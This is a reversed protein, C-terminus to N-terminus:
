TKNICRRLYWAALAHPLLVLIAISFFLFVFPFVDPVVQSLGKVWPPALLLGLLPFSFCPSLVLFMKYKRWCSKPILVGKLKRAIFYYICVGDAFIFAIALFLIIRIAMRGKVDPHDSFEGMFSAVLLISLVLLVVLRLISFPKPKVAQEM